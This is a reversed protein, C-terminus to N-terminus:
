GSVPHDVVGANVLSAQPTADRRVLSVVALGRNRGVFSTVDTLDAM